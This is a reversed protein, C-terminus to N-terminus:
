QPTGILLGGDRGCSYNCERQNTNPSDKLGNNDGQPSLNQTDCGGRYGKLTWTYGHHSISANEDQVFMDALNAVKDLPPCFAPNAAVAVSLTSCGLLVAALISQAYHHNM